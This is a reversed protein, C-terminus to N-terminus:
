APLLRRLRRRFFGAPAVRGTAAAERLLHSTVLHGSLVVFVDVGVFGGGLGPVGAHFLVVLVVAVARLGEVDRRFMGQSTGAPARRATPIRVATATKTM